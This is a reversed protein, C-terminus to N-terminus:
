RGSSMLEDLQRGCLLVGEDRAALVFPAPSRRLADVTTVMVSLPMGFRRYFSRGVEDALAYADDAAAKGSAVVLVDIDSGPEAEGRVVSGFLVLSVAVHSFASAICTEIEERVSSEAELAPLVISQVLINDRQLEHLIANGARRRSVVGLDALRSLARSAGVATLGTLEAVQRGTLPTTQAALLRLIASRGRGGFLANLM